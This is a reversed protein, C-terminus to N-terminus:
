GNSADARFHIESQTTLEEMAGYLKAASIPKCLYSDMGADLCRTGDGKMAHATMALIPVHRGTLAEMERIRRTADLGDMRPMQVDMLILDFTQRQIAELAEVGDGAVEVRHGKKELLRTAVTQNVANDEVLLVNLPPSMGARSTVESELASRRGLATNVAQRMADRVVPKPLFASVNLERWRTAQGPRIAAALVIAPVAPMREDGRILELLECGDSVVVDFSQHLMQEYGAIASRVATVEMGWHRLTRRLIQRTEDHDDALLVRVGALSGAEQEIEGAPEAVSAPITFCFQSGANLESEAWIRGGMLTVLRSCITLGLGTGGYRRTMSGDAQSFADFVSDIKDAAIGIGTDTVAFRLDGDYTIRLAVEGSATFKLANSILNLVVQRLRTPDAIVYEPVDEAIDLILELQKQEARAAMTKLTDGFVDRVKFPIQELELKGAEIKSFDLIDNIVTLLSDASMKLLKLYEREEAPLNGDLAVEAMGLVGNLPTRIEHSMNALFESKARNAAQAADRAQMLESEFQRQRSVDHVISMTAPRGGYEIQETEIEVDLLKGAKTRYVFESAALDDLTLERLEELSYGYIRLVAANCDVIRGTAPDTIFVHESISDFLTRYKEESRRLASEALQRQTIDIFTCEVVPDGGNDGETIISSSLAWRTNGSADRLAVDQGSVSSGTIADPADCFDRLRRGSLSESGLLRAAAPNWDLIRGDITTRLFAALNREFLRRYRGELKAEAHLRARIVDTQRAVRKRLLWVWALVALIVLVSGAIAVMSHRATWWSAKRLVVVDSADRLLLSFAEPVEYRKHYAVLCLGRLRLLSGPRLVPLADGKGSALKAVFIGREDQLVLSQEAGESMSRVLTGDISVLTLDYTTGLGHGSGSDKPLVQWGTVAQPRLEEGKGLPRIVADELTPRNEFLTYYGVGEALDGPRLGATKTTRVVARSAKDSLYVARGADVAVVTGRVRLRQDPAGTPSFEGLRELPKIPVQFPDAEPPEVVRIGDPPAFLGVGIMQRRSNFNTTLAGRVVVRAHVLRRQWDNPHEGFNANIRGDKLQIALMLRNGLIAGSRVRGEIEVARAHYRGSMMEAYPARVPEFPKGRGLVTVLGERVCPAFEGKSTIGTARILDGAKPFQGPQKPLLGVFIGATDDQMWMIGQSQNAYTVVGTVSVPRAQAAEAASLSRIQKATTLVPVPAASAFMAILAFLALRM